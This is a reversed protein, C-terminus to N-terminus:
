TSRCILECIRELEDQDFFHIELRGSGRPTTRIKVAAGFAERLREELDALYRDSERLRKKGKPPRSAAQGTLRETERVSLGQELVQKAAAPQKELPLALIARAHGESLRGAMVQRKVEGNLSLLRLTNAVAPRSRGLRRALQEQTHGFEELLRQFAEAEELPNLDERQLNEILAIEMMERSSFSKIVAPVRELGALAAARLRREGAVLEYGEGSRRVILPQLIGHEKVSDTLEQMKEEDFNKRPQYPNARISSTELETAASLPLDDIDPILAQLGRGLRKQTM